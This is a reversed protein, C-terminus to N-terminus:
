TLTMVEFTKGDGSHSPLDSRLMHAVYLPNVMDSGFM